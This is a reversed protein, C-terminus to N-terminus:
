FPKVARFNLIGDWLLIPLAERRLVVAACWRSKVSVTLPAIVINRWVHQM